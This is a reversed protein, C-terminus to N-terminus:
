AAAPTEGAALAVIFAMHTSADLSTMQGFEPAFREKLVGDVRRHLRKDVIRAGQAALMDLHTSLPERNILYTRRGRLLSWQAAGITWHGNWEDTLGHSSFDILHTMVAGRAALAKMFRYVGELDDVHELVSHSAIWDARRDRASEYGGIHSAITAGGGAMLDRRIQALRESALAREMWSTSLLTPFAPDDVYPFIRVFEGEHPIPARTGFLEVL